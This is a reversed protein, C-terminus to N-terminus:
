REVKREVCLRLAARVRRLWSKIGDESMAFRAALAARSEGDQCCALVLARSRAELGEICGRLAEVFADGGDEGCDAVFAAELADLSATTLRGDRRKVKWWRHRAVTRLYAATARPDEDAFPRQLVEVFVDHALEEAQRADCGLVRLFRILGAQHRRVLATVDLSPAERRAPLAM